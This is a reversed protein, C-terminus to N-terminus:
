QIAAKPMTVDPLPCLTLSEWTVPPLSSSVHFSWLGRLVAIYMIAPAGPRTNTKYLSILSRRHLLLQLEM